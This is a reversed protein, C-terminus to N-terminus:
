FLAGLGSSSEEEKNKNDKDDKKNNQDDTKNNNETNQASPETPTDTVKINGRAEKPLMSTLSNMQQQAKQIFIKITANNIINGNVALNLANSHAKGIMAPLVEKTPYGTNFALNYSCTYANEIKTRYEDLNIDLTNKDFIIGKEYVGVLNIGIEMPKIDVMQLVDALEPSIKDGKSAVKSDSMVKISSGQISAKVGVKTLSGIAPGPPIGTDGEPIIIDEPATDGPKAYAKEKSNKLTSFIKFPNMDSFVVSPIRPNIDKLKEVGKKKDKSMDIAKYLLRKKVTKIIMHERLTKKINQSQSAPLKDLNILGIAPYKEILNVLNKVEKKKWEQVMKM